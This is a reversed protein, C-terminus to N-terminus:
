VFLFLLTSLTVWDNSHKWVTIGRSAKWGSNFYLELLKRCGHIQGKVAADLYMLQVHGLLSTAGYWWM